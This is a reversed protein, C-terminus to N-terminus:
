SLSICLKIMFQIESHKAPHSQILLYTLIKQRMSLQEITVLIDHGEQARNEYELM